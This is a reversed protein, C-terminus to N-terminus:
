AKEQSNQYTEINPYKEEVYREARNYNTCYYNMWVNKEQTQIRFSHNRYAHIVSVYQVQEDTFFWTRGIANRYVFGKPYLVLVYYKMFLVFLIGMALFAISLPIFMLGPLFEDMSKASTLLYGSLFIMGGGMGICLVALFGYTANNYRCVILQDSSWNGGPIFPLKMRGMFVMLTIVAILAIDIIVVIWIVGKASNAAYEKATEIEKSFYLKQKAESYFYYGGVKKKGRYANLCKMLDEEQYAKEIEIYLQKTGDKTDMAVVVYYQTSEQGDNVTIPKTAKAIPELEQYGLETMESLPKWVKNWMFVFFACSAVIILIIYLVSKSRKM